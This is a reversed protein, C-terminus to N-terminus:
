FFYDDDDLGTIFDGTAMEIAKNRAACAGLSKKNFIAKLTGSNIEQALYETTGDTSGDDVVIIEIDKYTQKKVSEIARNLLKLRNKTPIYITVLM